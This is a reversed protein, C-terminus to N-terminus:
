SSVYFYLYISLYLCIYSGLWLRMAKTPPRRRGVSWCTGNQPSFDYEGSLDVSLLLNFHYNCFIVCSMNCELFYRNLSKHNIKFLRTSVSIFFENCLNLDDSSRYCCKFEYFASDFM